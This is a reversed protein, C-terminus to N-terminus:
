KNILVNKFTQFYIFSALFLASGISVYLVALYIMNFHSHRLITGLSIMFIILFYSKWAIFSFFCRKGKMEKIRKINKNAIKSFGFWAIIGGLFLALTLLSIHIYLVLNEVDNNIFLWLFGRKVLLAGIFLWMIGAVAYLYKKDIAPKFNEIIM